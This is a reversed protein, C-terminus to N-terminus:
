NKDAYKNLLSTLTNTDGNKLAETAKSLDNMVSPMKAKAENPIQQLKADIKNLGDQLSNMANAFDEIANGM